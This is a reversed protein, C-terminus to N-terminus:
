EENVVAPEQFVEMEAAAKALKLSSLRVFELHKRVDPVMIQLENDEFVYDHATTSTLAKKMKDTVKGAAHSLCHRANAMHRRTENAWCANAVDDDFAGRIDRKFDGDHPKAYDNTEKAIGVCRVVFAEYANYLAVFSMRQSGNLLSTFESNGWLGKWASEVLADLETEQSVRTVDAAIENIARKVEQKKMNTLRVKGCLRDRVAIFFRGYGGQYCLREHTNESSTLIENLIFWSSRSVNVVNKVDFALQLTVQRLVSNDPGLKTVNKAWDTDQDIKYYDVDQEIRIDLKEEM